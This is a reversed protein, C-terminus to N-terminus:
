LSLLKATEPGETHFLRGVANLIDSQLRVVKLVCSFVNNNIHYMTYLCGYKRVALCRMQPRRPIKRTIFLRLLLLLLLLLVYGDFCLM